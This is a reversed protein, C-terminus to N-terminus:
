FVCDVDAMDSAIVEVGDVLYRYGHVPARACSAAHDRPGAGLEGAAHLAESHQHERWRSRASGEAM